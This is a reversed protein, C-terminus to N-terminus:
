NRGDLMSPQTEQPTPFDEENIKYDIKVQLQNYVNQLLHKQEELKGILNKSQRQKLKTRCIKSEANKM